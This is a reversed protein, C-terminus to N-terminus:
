IVICIYLWIMTFCFSFSTYQLLQNLAKLMYINVWVATLHFRSLPFASSSSSLSTSCFDFTTMTGDVGIHSLHKVDTPLGIEMEVEREEEYGAWWICMYIIISTPQHHIHINLFMIWDIIMWKDRIFWVHCHVKKM